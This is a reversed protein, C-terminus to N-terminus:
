QLKLWKGFAMIPGIPVVVRDIEDVEVPTLDRDLYENHVESTKGKTDDDHGVWKLITYPDIKANHSAQIFFRRFSHFTLKGERHAPLNWKKRHLNFFDAEFHVERRGTHAGKVHQAWGPFVRDHGQSRQWEWFDVFGIQLLQQHIPIRRLSNGTKYGEAGDFDESDLELVLTQRGFWPQMQEFRLMGIESVRMGTHAAVLPAWFIHDDQFLRRGATYRHHRGACGTYVPCSTIATIEESSFPVRGAAVTARKRKGVTLQPVDFTFLRRNVGHRMLRTIAGLYNSNLTTAALKPYPKGEAELSLTFEVLNEPSAEGRLRPIKEVFDLLQDWIDLPIDTVPLTRVAPCLDEFMKVARELNARNDAGTHKGQRKFYDNLLYRLTFAGDVGTSFHAARAIANLPPAIPAPLHKSASGGSPSTKKAGLMDLVADFGSLDPKDVEIGVATEAVSKRDFAAEGEATARNFLVLEQYIADLNEGLGLEERARRVIKTGVNALARRRVLDSGTM